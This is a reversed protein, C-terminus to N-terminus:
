STAIALGSSPPPPAYARSWIPRSSALRSYVAEEISISVRRKRAIADAADTLAKKMALLTSDKANRFDVTMRVEGPVVNRSNPKVM